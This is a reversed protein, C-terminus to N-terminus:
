RGKVKEYLSFASSTDEGGTVLDDVHFSKVLKESCEPDQSAFSQIHHRLVANLIFQSSNVGFVVTNYRFVIIEPNKAEIDDIWLFRLCDRDIPDIEINLFAKEIDGVLAANNIRFRLLIDFLLPTLPPGVHLCDNLSTGNKHQKCSADFVIRVKTTEADERIVARHALYHVKEACELQIVKQIIGSELQENSTDNYKELVPPDKRLKRLLGNLRGLSVEYKSPLVDHGIKWPLRVSYRTGTFFIEDILQEHVENKERIGLSDLDWLKHDEEDIQMKEQKTSDVVFNGNADTTFNGKVPGSLVWGLTTNVAVPEHPGGRITEGMQFEWFFNSGVLIDVPLMDENKSVDSFYVNHLHPYDKKSLEAHETVISSIDNVVFCEIKVRKGGRLPCLTFEYVERKAIDAERSGFAKIGLTESRVPRLGLNGIAKATIFSKQSGTDFLVRVKSERKGNGNALATQLAVRTGSGTIGVWSAVNPDLPTATPIPRAVKAQFNGNNDCISTHHKGKCLACSIRSRCNYSRHGTTLCTFCKAYKRLISKREDVSKVKQCHESLHEELCYVCKKKGNMTLLANATGFEKGSQHPRFGRTKENAGNTTSANKIPVHSERVAIEKELGQLLDEVTWDLQDKEHFRIMSLRTSEPLKDLLLPVM